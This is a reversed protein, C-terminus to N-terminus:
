KSIFNYLIKGREIRATKSGTGQISHRYYRAFDNKDIDSTKNKLVNSEFKDLKEKIAKAEMKIDKDNLRILEVFLSLFNSKRTWISYPDLKLASIIKFIRNFLKKIKDKNPYEENFDKIYKENLKTTSFYGKDEVICMLTMVFELDKMRTVEGDNFIELESLAEKNQELIEEATSIFEGDYLANAIEVANLAYNVSNIRKFIERIKDLKIRGLSRLVIEYALFDEQEDESLSDFTPIKSLKIIYKGNKDKGDIYEAITSLRQQGDVVLRIAKKNKVDIEGDSVYIEPFPYGLLITEIFNEKHKDNWVLKRQFDPQLIIKGQKIDNYLDVIKPNTPSTNISVM